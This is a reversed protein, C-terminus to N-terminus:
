FNYLQTIEIFMANKLLLHIIIALPFLVKSLVSLANPM